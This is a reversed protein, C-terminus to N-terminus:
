QLPRVLLSWYYEAAEEMSLKSSSAVTFMPMGLPRLVLVYGDDEISLTENFSNRRGDVAQSYAIDGVHSDRSSWISCQAIRKGGEYICATFSTRDIRHFEINIHSNQEALTKLSFDFHRAIHDISNQLFVDRDHDSFTRKIRLNTSSRTQGEGRPREKPHPLEKPRALLGVAERVDKAVIALAENQNHFSSVPKGDTPTARLSGFPMSEWDCAHLIVPIVRATGEKHKQLARTLEKEYCYDSAIFDASILLLIIEATELETSIEDHLNDGAVIRRDYWSKILKQRKLPALHKEIERLLIEDKHSYSLFLTIM